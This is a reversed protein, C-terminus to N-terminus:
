RLEAAQSAPDESVTHDHEAIRLVIPAALEVAAVHAPDALYREVAALDDFRALLVFRYSGERRGVDERIAWSRIWPIKSPLANLGEIAAAIQTEDTGPQMDFLVVHDVPM